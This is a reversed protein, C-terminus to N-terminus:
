FFSSALTPATAARPRFQACASFRTFHGPQRMSAQQGWNENQYEIGLTYPTPLLGRIGVPVPLVPCVFNDNGLPVCTKTQPNWIYSM